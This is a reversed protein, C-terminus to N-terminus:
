EELLKYKYILGAPIAAVMPAVLFLWVQKLATGGVFIAPGLSRAPNGSVGTIPMACVHIAVLTLGVSIGAFKFNARQSTSGLIVCLLIFTFLFEAGFAAGLNYEGLYGEGWGNEGLGVAALSVPSATPTSNSTTNAEALRRAGEGSWAQRWESQGRAIGLLVAAAAIGGVFQAVIYLLLMQWTLSREAIFNALSVAPNAHAGSVTGFAYIVGLYALGFAFAITVKNADQLQGLSNFVISGCGLLVLIFTGFFECFMKSVLKEMRTKRSYNGATEYGTHESDSQLELAAPEHARDGEGM